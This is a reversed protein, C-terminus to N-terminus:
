GMYGLQALPSTICHECPIRRGGSVNNLILDATQPGSLGHLIKRIIRTGRAVIAFSTTGSEVFEPTSPYIMSGPELLDKCNVIHVAGCNDLLTSESLPHKQGIVTYVGLSQDLWPAIIAANYTARYDNNGHAPESSQNQSKKPQPPTMGKSSLLRRLEKFEPEIIEGINYEVGQSYAQLWDNYWKDPNVRGNRAQEILAKYQRRAQLFNTSKSLALLTRLERVIRQITSSQEARLRTMLPNLIKTDVTAIIWQNIASYPKSVAQWVTLQVAYTKYSKDLEDIINKTSAPAYYPKPPRADVPAAEYALISQSYHEQWSNNERQLVM